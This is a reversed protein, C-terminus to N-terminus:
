PTPASGTRKLLFPICGAILTLFGCLLTVVIMPRPTGDSKPKGM